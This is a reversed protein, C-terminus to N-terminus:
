QCDLLAIQKIFYNEGGSFNQPTKQVTSFLKEKDIFISEEFEEKSFNFKEDDGISLLYVQVFENSGINKRLEIKRLREKEIGIGLEEKIERIAGEEYDECAKLHGGFYSAWKGPDQWQSLSRKNLLLENKSNIVWIQTTRHWDGDLHAQKKEKKEGLLQNNEDVLDILEDM